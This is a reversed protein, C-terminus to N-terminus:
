LANLRSSRKRFAVIFCRCCVEASRLLGARHPCLLSIKISYHHLHEEPGDVELQNARQELQKELGKAERIAHHLEEVKGELQRVQENLNGREQSM